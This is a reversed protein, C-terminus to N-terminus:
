VARARAVDVPSASAVVYEDRDLREPELLVQEILGAPMVRLWSAPNLSDDSMLCPADLLACLRVVAALSSDARQISREAGPDTVYVSLHLPFEGEVAAREVLVASSGSTPDLRDRIADVIQVRPEPVALVTALATKLAADSVPRGLLLDQWFTV